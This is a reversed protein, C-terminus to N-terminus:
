GFILEKLEEKTEALYKGKYDYGNELHYVTDTETITIFSIRVRMPRNLSMVWVEKGPLFRVKITEM